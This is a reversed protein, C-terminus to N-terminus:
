ISSGDYIYLVCRSTYIFVIIQFKDKLKLTINLLISNLLKKCM